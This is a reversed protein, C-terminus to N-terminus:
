GCAPGARDVRVLRVATISPNNALEKLVMRGPESDLTVVTLAEGGASKRGNNMNAINIGHDGLVRGVEGIVGPVDKNSIFLISGRPEVELDFGDVMVLRPSSKGFLTGGVVHTESGSRVEVSVYTAFDEAASTRVEKVVVGRDQMLPRANVLNVQEVCPSLLGVAVAATVPETKHSAIEGGYTVTVERVGAECLQAAIVGLRRGLSLYPELVAMEEPEVAPFNVAFRVKNHLLVDVMQGAAAVAVNIQAEETSAGLHPTAVVKPHKALRWDTPPESAFVDLAAGGAKGADLAELLAGEDVIGGRACNIIGIGDRAGSLEKRGIMGRTRDTLSAHISVYHSKRLLEDLSDTMEIGLSRAQSADLFPDFGIVSMRLGLARRAVESGIRGLGVLGLTKGTLESGTYKKKEWVERKMSADAAAINRALAFLMGIAHEAASVTNGGPTNMVIIGRRSAADLDVNDVGAGARAIAKLNRAAALVDATLKTASRIVIGDVDAVAKKLEDASLGSRDIVEIGKAAKLIELGEKALGDSVLVKMWREQPM